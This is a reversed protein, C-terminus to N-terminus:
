KTSTISVHAPLLRGCIGIVTHKRSSRSAVILLLLLLILLLSVDYVLLPRM